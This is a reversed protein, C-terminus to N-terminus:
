IPLTHTNGLGHGHAHLNPKPALFIQYTNSVMQSTCLGVMTWAYIPVPLLVQPLSAVALCFGSCLYTAMTRSADSTEDFETPPIGLLYLWVVAELSCTRTSTTLAMQTYEPETSLAPHPPSMTSPIDISSYYANRLSRHNQITPLSPSIFSCKPNSSSAQPTCPIVICWGYHFLGPSSATTYLRTITTRNSWQYQPSLSSPQWDMTYQEMTVDTHRPPSTPITQLSASLTTFYHLICKWHRHQNTFTELNALMKPHRTWTRPQLIRTRLLWQGHLCSCMPLHMPIGNKSPM